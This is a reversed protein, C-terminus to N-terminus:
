ILINKVDKKQCFYHGISHSLVDLKNSYKGM